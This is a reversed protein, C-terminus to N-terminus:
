TNAIHEKKKVMYVIGIDVFNDSHLSLQDLLERDIDEYAVGTKEIILQAALEVTFIRELEAEADEGHIALIKEMSQQLEKDVMSKEGLGLLDWTKEVIIVFPLVLVIKMFQIM